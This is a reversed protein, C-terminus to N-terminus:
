GDVVEGGLIELASSVLETEPSVSKATNKPQELQCVLAFSKHYTKELAEEIIQRNKPEQLRDRHFSFRSSLILQTDSFQANCSRLLAYLSNNKEKILILARNWLEGNPTVPTSASSKPASTPRTHSTVPAALIPTPAIPKAVLMETVLTKTPAALVPRDAPLSLRVLATELALEPLAAKTVEALARVIEVIRVADISEALQRTAADANKNAGASTLMIERWRNILQAAVQSVQAGDTIAQDLAALAQAPQSAAIASTIANITELNSWGLLQRVTVATIQGDTSGAVQDLMSIADRFGGRSARALLELAEDDIAVKEKTALDRLHKTIDTMEIPKFNFRQTRSIITEPVKHAETTALIFIVHAPPEELTKLLANFAETTLMHVEDIIYVKYKGITPAIMVKDRLDRMEDIRRNSAADIEIVDMNSALPVVCVACVGCPKNNEDLCNVSMALLRAVSTKGVGRPGTFLYAHSIRGGAIANKLTQVVHDQGIVEGFNRSRYKRYLALEGM